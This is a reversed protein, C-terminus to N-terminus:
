MCISTRTIEIDASFPARFSVVTVVITASRYLGMCLRSVSLWRVGCSPKESISSMIEAVKTAIIRPPTSGRSVPPWFVYSACVASM